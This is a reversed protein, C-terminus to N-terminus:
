GDVDVADALAHGADVQTDGRRHQRREEPAVRDHHPSRRVLLRQPQSADRGLPEQHRVARGLRLRAAVETRQLGDGLRHGAVVASDGGVPDGPLLLPDAVPADGIEVGDQGVGRTARRPEHDVAVGRAKGVALGLVLVADAEAVGGGEEEVVDLHRSIPQDAPDLTLSENLGLEDETVGAQHDGGEAQAGAPRREIPGDRVRGLPDLGAPGSDSFRPKM